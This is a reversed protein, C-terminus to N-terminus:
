YTPPPIDLYHCIHGKMLGFVTNPVYIRFIIEKPECTIGSLYSSSIDWNNGFSRIPRTNFILLAAGQLMAVDRTNLQRPAVPLSEGEGDRCPPESSFRFTLTATQHAEAIRPSLGDLSALLLSLIVLTLVLSKGKKTWRM